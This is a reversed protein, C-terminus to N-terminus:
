ENMSKITQQLENEVSIALNELGEIGTMKMAETPRLLSVKTSGNDRYISIKCPLVLGVDKNTEIANGAHRPNCVDLILYPEIEQGNKEKLIKQVDITSLVGYGKHKLQEQLKSSVEEVGASTTITYDISGNM